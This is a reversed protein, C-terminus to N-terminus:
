GKRDIRFDDFYVTGAARARLGTRGPKMLSNDSASFLLRNGFLVRIKDGRYVIKAVYWQGTVLNHPGSEASVMEARGDIMRFVAINRDDVSVRLMYYNRPDQYRWVIGATRTGPAGSAIKFKVSLDGDLCVTKDFVALVPEADAGSLAVQAFVNPRSPASSDTRIEWRARESPRPEIATWGPPLTGPRIRDFNFSESNGGFIGVALLAIFFSRM